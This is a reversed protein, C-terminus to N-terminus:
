RGNITIDNLTIYAFPIVYSIFKVWNRLEM